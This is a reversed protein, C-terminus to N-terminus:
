QCHFEYKCWETTNKGSKNRSYRAVIGTSLSMGEETGREHRALCRLAQYRVIRKACKIQAKPLAAPVLLLLSVESAHAISGLLYAPDSDTLPFTGTSTYHTVCIPM